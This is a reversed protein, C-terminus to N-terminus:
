NTTIGIQSIKQLIALIKKDLIFSAIMIPEGHSVPGEYRLKDGNIFSMTAGAAEIIASPACTDWLKIRQSWAVFFDAEKELIVMAKLGISSQYNVSKPQLEKILADQRPSKHTRSLVLNLETSPKLLLTFHTSTLIGNEIKDAISPTDTRVVGRWLRDHTPQYIVGLRAIGGIALGIMIVFDNKGIMYRSTGDIPDIFWTRDTTISIENYIFTEESIIRDKPFRKLLEQSIYHDIAIDANTVPGEGRQKYTITLNHQLDLAMQGAHRALDQAIMLERDLEM